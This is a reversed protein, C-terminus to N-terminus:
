VEGLHQKIAALTEKATCEDSGILEVAEEIVAYAHRLLATQADLKDARVIYVDICTDCEVGADFLEFDAPDDGDAEWYHYRMKHLILTDAPPSVNRRPSLAEVQAKLSEVEVYAENARGRWMKISEAALEPWERKSGEHWDKYDAPMVASLRTDYDHLREIEAAQQAVEAELECVNCSRALQGHKCDRDTTM